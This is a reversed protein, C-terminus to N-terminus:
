QKQRIITMKQIPVFGYKELLTLLNKRKGIEDALDKKLLPISDEFAKWAKLIDLHVFCPTQTEDVKILRPLNGATLIFRYEKQSTDKAYLGFSHMLANRCLYFYKENIDSVFSKLYTRAYKRFREGVKRITDDDAYYKALLDIGAFIGM